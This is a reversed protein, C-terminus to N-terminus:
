GAPLEVGMEWIHGEQWNLRLANDVNWAGLTACSGVVILAQGFETRVRINFRVSTGSALIRKVQLVDVWLCPPAYSLKDAPSCQATVEATGPCACVM